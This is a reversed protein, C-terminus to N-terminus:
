PFVLVTCSMELKNMPYLAVSHRSIRVQNPLALKAVVHTREPQPVIEDGYFNPSLTLNAGENRKEQSAVLSQASFLGKLEDGYDGQWPGMLPSLQCDNTPNDTSTNIKSTGSPWRRNFDDYGKM